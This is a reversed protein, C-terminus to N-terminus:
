PTCAPCASVEAGGARRRAHRVAEGARATGGRRRAPRSGERRRAHVAPRHRALGRHCAGPQVQPRARTRAPEVGLPHRDRHAPVAAPRGTVRRLEWDRCPAASADDAVDGRARPAALHRAADAGVLALLVADRELDRGPRRAWRALGDDRQVRRAPVRPLPGGEPDRPLRRALQRDPPERRVLYAHHGRHGGRGVASRHEVRSARIRRGRSRRSRAM